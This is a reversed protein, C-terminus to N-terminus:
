KRSCGSDYYKNIKLDELVAVNMVKATPETTYITNYLQIIFLSAKVYLM